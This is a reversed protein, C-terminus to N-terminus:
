YLEIKNKKSKKNLKFILGLFLSLSFLILYTGWKILKFINRILFCRNLFNNLVFYDCCFNNKAKKALRLLVEKEKLHNATEAENETKKLNKIFPILM